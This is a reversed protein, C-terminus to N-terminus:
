ATSHLPELMELSLQVVSTFLVTNLMGRTASSDCIRLGDNSVIVYDDGWKKQVCSQVYLVNATSPKLDVYTVELSHFEIKGGTLVKKEAKM